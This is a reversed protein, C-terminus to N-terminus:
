NTLWVIKSAEGRLMEELARKLTELYNEFDDHEAKLTERFAETREASELIEKYSYPETTIINNIQREVREIREELDSYDKEIGEAGLEELKRKALVELEELASVDSQHYAIVIRNWLDTLEEDQETMANIDPHLLKALRRYLRKALLSEYHAIKEAKQAMDYEEQMTGLQMYYSKMEQEIEAEMKSADVSLGRNMRRRCYGISKKVKICQIKLEFNACIQEGFEQTYRIQYSTAEKILQEKQILLNEYEEYRQTDEIEPTIVVKSM